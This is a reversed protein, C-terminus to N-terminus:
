PLNLNNKKRIEMAQGIALICAECADGVFMTVETGDPHTVTINLKPLPQHSEPHCIDCQHKTILM